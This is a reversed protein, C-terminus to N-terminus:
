HSLALIGAAGLFIALQKWVRNWKVSPDQVEISVDQGRPVLRVEKGAGNGLRIKLNTRDLGGEEPPQIGRIVRGERTIVVLTYPAVPLREFVFVGNQDTTAEFSGAASTLRLTAQALPVRDLPDAIKGQILLYAYDKPESGRVESPLWLLAAAGFLLV